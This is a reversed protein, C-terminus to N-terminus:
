LSQWVQPLEPQDPKWRTWFVESIIEKGSAWLQQLTRPHLVLDSDVLFLGDYGERAAMEIVQDKYAAVRWIAEEPWVHTTDGRVFPSGVSHGHILRCDFKAAFEQLLAKSEPDDNDDVFCYSVSFGSIDLESLSQLYERLVDPIQRVPSAVLLKVM